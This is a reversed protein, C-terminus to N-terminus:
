IILNSLTYKQIRDPFEKLYEEFLEYDGVYRYASM